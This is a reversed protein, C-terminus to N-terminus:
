KGGTRFARRSAVTHGKDYQWFSLPVAGTEVSIDKMMLALVEDWTYASSKSGTITWRETKTHHFRHAVYSYVPGSSAYQVSFKIAADYEPEEPLNAREDREEILLELRRQALEIEREIAATSRAMDPEKRSTRLAYGPLVTLPSIISRDVEALTQPNAEGSTAMCTCSNCGVKSDHEGLEHRCFRCALVGGRIPTYSHAEVHGRWRTCWQEPKFTRTHHCLVRQPGAEGEIQDAYWESADGM